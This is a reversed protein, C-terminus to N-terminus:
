ADKPQLVMDIMERLKKSYNFNGAKNCWTVALGDALCVILEVLKEAPQMNGIEDREQAKEILSIYIDRMAIDEPSLMKNKKELFQRIIEGFVEPGAQVTRQMYIHFIRNFQEYSSESTLLPLLHRNIEIESTLFYYNLVDDKSKFHYYFGSRTIGCAECIEQVTVHNVGHKQYLAIAKEVINIKTANKDESM